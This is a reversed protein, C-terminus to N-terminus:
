SAARDQEAPQLEAQGIQDRLIKRVQPLEALAKATPIKAFYGAGFFINQLVYWFHEAGSLETLGYDSMAKKAPIKCFYGAAFFINQLVYWFQEAGTLATKKFTSV